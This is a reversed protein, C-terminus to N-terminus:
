RNPYVKYCDYVPFISVCRALQPNSSFNCASEYDLELSAKFHMGNDLYIRASSSMYYFRYVNSDGIQKIKYANTRHFYDLDGYVGFEGYGENVIWMTYSFKYRQHVFPTIYDYILECDYEGEIPNLSTKHSSLYNRIEKESVFQAYITHSIAM